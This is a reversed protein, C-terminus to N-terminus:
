INKQPPSLEEVDVSVSMSHDGGGVFVGQIPCVDNYDRGYALTIHDTNPIVNNTPDFDVWGLEGCYVSLWAHSADAGVLRPKGEPPLTRLYGSVYRASLGLSRLCAIQLHAFDQCVGSKQALVQAVPTSVNTTRPDYEFEEYIRRTLDQAAEVIPRGPLFSVSAYEAFQKQPKAYDSGYALLQTEIESDIVNEAPLSQIGEVVEEWSPSDEPLQKLPEEAVVISSIATVALGRHAHVLSFYDVQNGFYDRSSEIESPEPIVLLRFDTCRQNPMSRPALHVKNHCVPVSESYAYKTTHTIRYQM